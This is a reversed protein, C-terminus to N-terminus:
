GQLTRLRNEAYARVTPQINNSEIARRYAEIAQHNSHKRELVVGLGLWYQGNSPDVAVLSQYLSGAENTRDLTEFIAALLAYYEPNTNIDPHYKELLTLADGNSGQEALLRAKIVILNLNHPQRRLGDDLIEYASATNNNSLYLIALNERAEISTPFETLILTLLDIARQDDGNQIAELAKNLNEEYWDERTYNIFKENIPPTSEDLKKDIWSSSNSISVLQSSISQLRTHHKPIDKQQHIYIIFAIILVLIIIWPLLNSLRISPASEVSRSVFLPPEQRRTPMKNLDKLMENLLSM